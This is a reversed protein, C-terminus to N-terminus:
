EDNECDIRRSSTQRQQERDFQEKESLNDQIEIPYKEISQLSCHVIEPCVPLRSHGNGIPEFLHSFQRIPDSFALSRSPM